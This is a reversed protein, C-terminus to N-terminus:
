VMKWTRIEFPKLTFALESTASTEGDNWELLDTEIFRKKLDLARLTGRTTMGRTEVVRAIIAKGKEARKLAALELGEGELTIPLAANGAAHGHFCALGQNIIAAHTLVDSGVLDGTHPLLSYTFDHLGIDAVPDPDTPARLLSLEMTGGKVRYGHKCNNLLAVGCDRESLDAWRLAAAEFQAYERLTNDHTPRALHGYQIEFRAEPSSITTPFAVRLLKHSERWDAETVFDLRKGDAELWVTQSLRSNGIRLEARLGSRAPGSILTTVGESKATALLMNRYYEDIDWADHAHPHDDFLELRNATEGAPLLERGTHKDFMGTLQLDKNFTYKVLKNELIFPPEAARAIAAPAPGAKQLSIFAGPPAQVRAMVAGDEQQQALLCATQKAGQWGDPLRAMGTFPTSSPNFLTMSAADAPLFQKASELAIARAQVIIERLQATTEENVRRISSGPIIDHFQHMLLNKWLKDFAEAPYSDAGAAVCVAEAARLAEEARRNLLKIAAQTTLTGRHYEFYLEGQWTDLDDSYSAMKELVPQAFSFHFRPCGNLNRLRLGREIHDEKPGGGGNGPGFLCIAEQILGAERNNWENKALEEPLVKCNYDDNPPFHALLGSGDIGRWIFTNHPFKNYRNWSLKQTLFYDIGARKLIQPLNGSYGFVDPLWLNKVNIGFEDMFFNKGHVVQRVMSEGGILNCDAEVWMGGQVEWRGDAVAQKIKEYLRPYHQKTFAYLQAQSAGFCYDPYREILNIQSAFTRGCKRITERVPWLWATDIHAHGIGFVDIAAPDAPLDFVPKLAQRVAAPGGLPLHDLAKSCARLVQLKRASAGKLTSILNELATLDLWLHWADMNFRCLRLKKLSSSYHGHIREPKDKREADSPRNVGFLGNCGAEIWFDIAEGGSCAPHLHFFEKNYNESLVSSSSLGALPMGECDFVLIEGMFDLQLAVAAGKWQEPIKAKIHFWACDWTKGWKEGETIVRYDLKLREDFCVPEPTVAFVAELPLSESVIESNLRHIAEALRAAHAEFFFHSM